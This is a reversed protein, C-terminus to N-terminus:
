GTSEKVSHGSVTIDPMVGDLLGIIGPSKMTCTVEVLLGASTSRCIVTSATSGVVGGGLTKAVRGAAADATIDANAIYRAADASASTMVTKAYLWLGVSLLALFLMLLFVLVM